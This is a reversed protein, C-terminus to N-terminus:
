VEVSRAKRRGCVFSSRNTIKKGDKRGPESVTKEQILKSRWSV